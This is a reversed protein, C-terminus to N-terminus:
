NIGNRVLVRNVVLRREYLFKCILEDGASYAFYCLSEPSIHEYDVNSKSDKSYVAIADAFGEYEGNAALIALVLEREFSGNVKIDEVYPGFLKLVEVNGIVLGRMEKSKWFVHLREKNKEVLYRAVKKEPNGVGRILYRVVDEGCDYKKFLAVDDAKLGTSLVQFKYYGFNVINELNDAYLTPPLLVLEWDWRARVFEDLFKTVSYEFVDTGLGYMKLPILIIRGTLTYFPKIAIRALPRLIYPDDKDVLYAVITGGTIDFPLHHRFDGKTAHMCSHWARDTSMRAIDYPDRTLIVSQTPLPRHDFQYKLDLLGAEKLMKGIRRQKKGCTAKNQDYNTMTCNQSALFKEIAHKTRNIVPLIPITTRPNTGFIDNYIKRKYAVRKKPNINNSCKYVSKAVKPTWSLRTNKIEM